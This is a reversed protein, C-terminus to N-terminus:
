AHFISPPRSGDTFRAGNPEQCNMVDLTWSSGIADLCSASRLLPRALPFFPVFVFCDM